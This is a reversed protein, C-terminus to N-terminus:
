DEDDAELAKIFDAKKMNKTVKIGRERCLAKLDKQTMDEYDPADEEEEEEEDDGEEDSEILLEIIDEKDLGKAVKIGREKCEAKLEKVSMDDYDNGEDEEDEEVEEEDEESLLEILDDKGMGKSVKIGKERCLAKLDKLSMSDLDVEEEEEEEEETEEEEDEEMVAELESNYAAAIKELGTNFQEQLANIAEEVSIEEDDNDAPMREIVEALAKKAKNVEKQDFDGNLVEDLIELLGQTTAEELWKAKKAM